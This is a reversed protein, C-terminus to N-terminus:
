QAKAGAASEVTETVVRVPVAAEADIARKADNENEFAVVDGVKCGEFDKTFKLKLKSM